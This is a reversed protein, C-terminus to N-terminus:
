NVQRWAQRILGFFEDLEEEEFDKVMRTLFSGLRTQVENGYAVDLLDDIERRPWELVEAIADLVKGSPLVPGRKTNVYGNEIQSLYQSSIPCIKSIREAFDIGRKIGVALRKARLAAGFTRLANTRVAEHHEAFNM